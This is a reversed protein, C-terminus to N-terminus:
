ENIFQIRYVCQHLESKLLFVQFYYYLIQKWYDIYHIEFKFEQTKEFSQKDLSNRMSSRLWYHINWFISKLIEKAWRIIQNLTFNLIRLKKENIFWSLEQIQKNKMTLLKIEDILKINKESFLTLWKARLLWPITDNKRNWANTNLSNNEQRELREIEILVFKKEWSISSNISIDLFNLKSTVTFQFFFNSKIMM